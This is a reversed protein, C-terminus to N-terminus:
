LEVMFFVADPKTEENRVSVPDNFATLVACSHNFAALVIV